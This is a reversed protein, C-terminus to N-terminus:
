FSGSPRIEKISAGVYVVFTGAPRVWTQSPTDWISMERHGVTMEVQQSAGVALVVEDFGGDRGEPLLVTDCASDNTTSSADAPWTIADPACPSHTRLARASDGADFYTLLVILPRALAELHRVDGGRRALFDSLGVGIDISVFISSRIHLSRRPDEAALADFAGLNDLMSRLSRVLDPDVLALLVQHLSWPPAQLAYLAIPMYRALNVLTRLPRLGDLGRTSCCAEGDEGAAVWSRRSQGSMTRPPTPGSSPPSIVLITVFHSSLPFPPCDLPSTLFRSSPLLPFSPPRTIVSFSSPLTIFSISSPRRPYVVSPLPLRSLPTPHCPAPSVPLLSSVAARVLGWLGLADAAHKLHTPRM